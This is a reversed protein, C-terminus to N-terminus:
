SLLRFFSVYDCRICMTQNSYCDTLQEVQNDALAQVYQYMQLFHCLKCCMRQAMLWVTIPQPSLRAIYDSTDYISLFVNMIGMQLPYM